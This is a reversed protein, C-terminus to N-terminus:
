VDIINWVSEDIGTLHANFRDRHVAFCLFHTARSFGVYIMKATQSIRKRPNELIKEEQLFQKGLKEIEYKEYFYSELYLTATHTEGKSSHVSNMEILQDGIM